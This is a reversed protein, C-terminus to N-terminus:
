GRPARGRAWPGTQPGLLNSSLDRKLEEVGAAVFVAAEERTMQEVLVNAAIETLRMLFQENKAQDYSLQSIDAAHLLLRAVEPYRESLIRGIEEEAQNMQEPQGSGNLMM